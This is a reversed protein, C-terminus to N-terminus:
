LTTLLRSCFSAPVEVFYASLHYPVKKTRQLACCRLPCVDKLAPTLTRPEGLSFKPSLHGESKASHSVPYIGIAELSEVQLPFAANISGYPNGSPGITPALVTFRGRGLAEGIHSGEAPELSFNTFNPTQRVRVGIRWGGTHTRETFTNQLTHTLLWNEVVTDCEASSNFRKVDFDLWIINHWGGLTGIGNAPNAFWRQLEWLHPIRQQFPAHHLLHAVGQSDLYSPNKGTFKPNHLQAPAVPLPPLNWQILRDIVAYINIQTLKLAQFAEGELLVKDLKIGIM